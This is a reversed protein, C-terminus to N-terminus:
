AYCHFRQSIEIASKMANLSYYCFASSKEVLVKLHTHWLNDM